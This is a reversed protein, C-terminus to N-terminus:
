FLLRIVPDALYGFVLAPVLLLLAVKLLEKPKMGYRMLTALGLGANTLLGALLSGFTLAGQAFLECLVVTAACNPIFGFLAAILPQWMASSTLFAGLRDEGIGETLANFGVTILFIFLYIKLARLLASMWFSCSPYTCPCCDTHDDEIHKWKRTDHTEEEPSLTRLKQRPFLVNDILYGCATAIVFKIAMLAGLAPLMRPEAILIPVAEDSTALFIAVMTGMTINKELFLLAALVSFGCQPVLGLLAGFIPGYKQLLVYLKNHPGHHREAWEIILYVVFLLPFSLWTDHLADLTIDILFNM